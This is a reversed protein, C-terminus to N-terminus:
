SAEQKDIFAELIQRSLESMTTNRQDAIKNFKRKQVKTVYVYLYTRDQKVVKTSKKAPM